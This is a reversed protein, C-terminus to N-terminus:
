TLDTRPSLKGPFIRGVGFGGIDGELVIEKDDGFQHRIRGGIFPDVWELDGTRAMGLVRDLNINVSRDASITQGPGFQKQIARELLKVGRRNLDFGRAEIV